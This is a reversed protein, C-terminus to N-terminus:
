SKLSLSLIFMECFVIDKNPFCNIHWVHLMNKECLLISFQRKNNYHDSSACAHHMVFKIECRDFFDTIKVYKIYFERVFSEEHARIRPPLFHPNRVQCTM